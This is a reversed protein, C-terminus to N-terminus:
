IHILSLLYDLKMYLGDQIYSKWAEDEWESEIESVDEDNVTPFESLAGVLEQNEEDDKLWYRKSSFSGLTVIAWIEGPDIHLGEACNWEGEEKDYIWTGDKKGPRIASDNVREVRKDGTMKELSRINGAGWVGTNTYDGHELWGDSIFNYDEGNIKVILTDM